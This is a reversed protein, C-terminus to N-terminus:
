GYSEEENEARKQDQIMLMAQSYLMVPLDRLTKLERVAGLMYNQYDQFSFGEFEEPVSTRERMERATELKYDMYWMLAAFGRTKVMDEIAIRIETPGLATFDIPEIDFLERIEEEASM